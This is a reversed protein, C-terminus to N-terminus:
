GKRGVVMKRFVKAPRLRTGERERESDGEDEEGAAIMGLAGRRREAGVEGEAAPRSQTGETREAAM